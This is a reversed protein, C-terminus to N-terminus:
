DLQAEAVLVTVLRSLCLAQAHLLTARQALMFNCLQQQPAAAEQQSMLRAQLAARRLGVRLRCRGLCVAQQLAAASM